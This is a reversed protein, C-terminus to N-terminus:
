DLFDHHQIIIDIIVKIFEFTNIATKLILNDPIYFWLM